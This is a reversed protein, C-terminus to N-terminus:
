SCGRYRPGIAGGHVLRVISPSEDRVSFGFSEDSWEGLQSVSVNAARRRDGGWTAVEVRADAVQWFLCGEESVTWVLQGLRVDCSPFLEFRGELTSTGEGMQGLPTTGRLRIESSDPDLEATDRSARRVTISYGSVDPGQDPLVDVLRQAFVRAAPRGSELIQAIVLGLRGRGNGELEVIDGVSLGRAEPGVVLLEHPAALHSVTMQRSAKAMSLLVRHPRVESCFLVFLMVTLSVTWPAQFPAHFSALSVILLLVLLFKWAGLRRGILTAIGAIRGTIRGSIPDTQLVYALSLLAFSSAGILLLLVWWFVSGTFGSALCLLITAISNAVAAQSGAFLPEFLFAAFIVLLLVEFWLSERKLLSPEAGLGDSLWVALGAGIAAYVLRALRDAGKADPSSNLPPM